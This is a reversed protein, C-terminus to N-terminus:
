YKSPSSIHRRDHELINLHQKYTGEKIYAKNLERIGRLPAVRKHVGEGKSPKEGRGLGQIVINSLKAKYELIDLM